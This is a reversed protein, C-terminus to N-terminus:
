NSSKRLFDQSQTYQFFGCSLSGRWALLFLLPSTDYRYAVFRTVGITNVRGRVVNIVLGVLQLASVIILPMFFSYEMVIFTVTGAAPRYFLSILGFLAIDAAIILCM